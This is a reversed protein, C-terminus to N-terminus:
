KKIGLISLMFSSFITQIGIIVFMFAFIASETKNTGILFYAIIGLLIILLGTISASEISLYKYFPNLIPKDGFHTIAYTKTFLAFIILQYGIIVFLASFLINYFLFIISLLFLILGPIFFLFLPSYLLMFRFHRWGDKFTRLKSNGERKYYHVPVEKIKLGNKVAMIIMESAFEMGTTKLNLKEFSEKKIARFGTNIDKVNTKFFLRSTFSLIPNGIYRHSFPMSGKQIFKRKGLVLDYEGIYELLKPIESFDYTNDADGFVVIDGKAHKFGELCANGYGEKNHKVVQVGLKKAIEASKDTSSDSVIIEYNKEKLAEKIRGICIGVTKEENRCPLIVSIKENKLKM